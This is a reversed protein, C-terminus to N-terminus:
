NDFKERKNPKNQRSRAVYWNKNIVILLQTSYETFFSLLPFYYMRLIFSMNLKNILETM